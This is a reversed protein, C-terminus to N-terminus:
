KLEQISIERMSFRLYLLYNIIKTILALCFNFFYIVLVSKTFPVSYTVLFRVARLLAMTM